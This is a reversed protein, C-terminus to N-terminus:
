TLFSVLDTSETFLWPCIYSLLRYGQSVDLDSRLIPSETSAFGRRRL